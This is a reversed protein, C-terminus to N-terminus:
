DDTEVTSNIHMNQSYSAWSRLGLRLGLEFKVFGNKDLRHLMSIICHVLQELDLLSIALSRMCFSHLIVLMVFQLSAQRHNTPLNLDCGSNGVQLDSSSVDASVRQM